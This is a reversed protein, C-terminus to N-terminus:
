LRYKEALYKLIELQTEREAAWNAAWDAARDTARYAAEYAARYEKDNLLELYGSEYILITANFYEQIEIIGCDDVARSACMFVFERQIKELIDIKQTFIWVKDDTTINKLKLFGRLNGAWNGHHKLYNNWRDSCPNFQKIFEKNVKM